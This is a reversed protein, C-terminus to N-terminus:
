SVGEDAVREFVKAYGLRELLPPVIGPAINALVVLPRVPPTNVIVEAVDKRICRVVVDAVKKPTTSGAIRPARIGAQGWRAYMGTDTIFAPCVVSM